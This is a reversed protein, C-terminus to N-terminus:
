DEITQTTNRMYIWKRVEATTPAAVSDKYLGKRTKPKLFWLDFWSQVWWHTSEQPFGSERLKMAMHIAVPKTLQCM